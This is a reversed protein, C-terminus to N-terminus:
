RLQPFCRLVRAECLRRENEPANPVFAKEHGRRAIAGANPHPRRTIEIKVSGFLIVM